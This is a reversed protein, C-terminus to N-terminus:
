RERLWRRFIFGINLQLLAMTNQFEEVLDIIVRSQLGLLLRRGSRLPLRRRRVFINQCVIWVNSYANADSNAYEGRPSALLRAWWPHYGSSVKEVM